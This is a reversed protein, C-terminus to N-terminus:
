NKQKGVIYELVTSVKQSMNQSKPHTDGYVELYSVFAREYCELACELEHENYYNDGLEVYNEADILKHELLAKNM